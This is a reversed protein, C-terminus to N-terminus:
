LYDFLSLRTLKAYSQQAAQLAALQQNLRTLAQAYDTDRLKSLNATVDEQLVGRLAAADDIATLRGGLVSRANSMHQMTQQLQTLAGGLGNTSAARQAAGEIPAELTAALKELTTFIGETGSPEIVIRDGAVPTGSVAIRLGRFEIAAGPAHTGSAVTADADDRAEWGGGATFVIRYERADWAGPEVVASAGIVATGTNSADARVAFRGNGAPVREFLDSGPFGDAVRQGPAIEVFRELDDGVYRVAGDQRQFAEAGVKAGAFLSEGAPTRRNVIQLLQETRARVEAALLGRASGDLAGNGGQIALEQLRQLIDTTEALATEQQSLRSALLDGNRQQQVAASQWRELEQIRGAAVPDDAPTLLRSGGAVQAQTRQLEAQARTISEVPAQLFNLTSIRM